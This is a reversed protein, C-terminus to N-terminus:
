QKQITMTIKNQNSKKSFVSFNIQKHSNKLQLSQYQSLEILMLGLLNFVRQNRLRISLIKILIHSNLRIGFSMHEIKNSSDIKIDKNVLKTCNNIPGTLIHNNNPLNRHVM